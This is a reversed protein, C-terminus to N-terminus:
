RLDHTGTARFLPFAVVQVVVRKRAERLGPKKMKNFGLRVLGFTLASTLGPLLFAFSARFALPECIIKLHGISETNIKM